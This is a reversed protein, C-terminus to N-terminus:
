EYRLAKIPNTRAVRISNGAVTGWAIMLAALGAILCFSIILINDIRYAFSELWRSMAYFSLPWAILNAVIVPKSFQWLLLKVIDIIKAGMVKRIGIEKTRREATFSALGYLGLCAILIALGSFAAFMTAQGQEETYQGDIADTLHRYNFSLEPFEKQWIDNLKDVIEQPEGTYRVTISRAFNSQLPYIEARANSRLSEFHIDKTVGIVEYEAEGRAEVNGVGMYVTKGIAAEADGLGLQRVATQNLILSARHGNGALIVDTDAREDNRGVQYDRGAILEIDFTKLFDEGIRRNSVIITEEQSLEPTRVSTNNEFTQGPVFSAWTVDTTEPIRKIESVLLSFKEQVVDRTIGTITVLNDKSFGLDMNKAYQMQGFVVATSVFLGISVSFQIIVLASRLKVSAGSEISQNAKLIEAPRFGSLIFAPYLGGLLGVIVALIFIQMLDTGGYNVIYEEGLIGNYLPLSIEVIALAILLGILTLLVSEGLFQLVLTKKSAGVVKRMSVERARQSARATSLNMFNISAIILILTAIASFTMVTNINGRPRYDGVGSSKLHLDKINVVELGVRSSVAENPDGIPFKPFNRDIFASLQNSIESINGRERLAFFMHADLSFWDEFIWASESWDEEVILAMSKIHIQSKEPWDGIVAEVIYDRKFIDFDLTVIQGLPNEGAFYKNALTENLAITNNGSVAKEIDGSILNFDFINVADPDVLTIEEVTLTDGDVLMPRTRLVRTALEIQPFDKKLAEMVPGPTSVFHMPDRGPPSFSTHTRFIRDGKSWNNDYSLEDRVFLAILMVAALGVALGLVNIASFLKHRLIHRWSTVIYNTVIMM